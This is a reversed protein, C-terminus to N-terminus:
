TQKTGCKNCFESAIEFKAPGLSFRKGLLEAQLDEVQNVVDTLEGTNRLKEIARESGSTLTMRFPYQDLDVYGGTLLQRISKAMDLDWKTGSSPVTFKVGTKSEVIAMDELLEVLYPLGEERIRAQKIPFRAMLSDNSALNMTLEKSKTLAIVFRAIALGDKIPANTPDFDYTFNATKADFDMDMQWRVHRSSEDSVLRLRLGDSKEKVFAYQKRGIPSHM